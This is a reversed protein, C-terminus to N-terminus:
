NIFHCCFVQGFISYYFQVLSVLKKFNISNFYHPNLMRLFLFISNIIINDKNKLKDKNNNCPHPPPCTLAGPEGGVEGIGEEGEVVVIGDGGVGVGVGTGVCVIFGGGGPVGPPSPGPGIM